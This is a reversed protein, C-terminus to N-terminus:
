KKAEEAKGAARAADEERIGVAIAVPLAAMGGFLIAGEFM